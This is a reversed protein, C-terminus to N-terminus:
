RFLAMAQTNGATWRRNRRRRGHVSIDGNRSTRKLSGNMRDLNRVTVATAARPAPKRAATGLETRLAALDAAPPQDALLGALM